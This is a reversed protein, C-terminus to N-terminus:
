WPVRRLTRTRQRYQFTGCSMCRFYDWREPHRDSVGGIHSRAFTLPQDCSPCKLSLPSTPPTTTTYREYSKRLVTRRSGESRAVLDASEDVRTTIGATKRASRARLDKSNALLWRTEYLITDATAPKVLVADAGAQRARDLNAPRQEATVVLIPVNATARDHRVIECLAYGDVLPLTVETVVLTPPPQMLVKTLADRGDSAEVVHYGDRTFLARYVARAEDDEDAVLIRSAAASLTNTRRETEVPARHITLM